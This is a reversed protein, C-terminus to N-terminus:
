NAAPQADRIIFLLEGPRILGLEERAVAEILTPDDSLRRIYDRLRANENRLSALAAEADQLQRRARLREMLGTDGVLADVLLVIAAFILLSYVIRRRRAGVPVPLPRKRRLPEQGRERRSVAPRESSSPM